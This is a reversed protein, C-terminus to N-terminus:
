KPILNHEKLGTLLDNLTTRVEAVDVRIANIAAIAEDRHVATDYAGAVAGIGGAPADSSTITAAADVVIGLQLGELQNRLADPTPSSM